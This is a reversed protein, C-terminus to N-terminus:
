SLEDEQHFQIKIHLFPNTVILAPPKSIFNAKNVVKELKEKVNAQGGM